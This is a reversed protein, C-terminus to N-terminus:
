FIGAITALFMPKSDAVGDYINVRELDYYNSNESVYGYRTGFGYSYGADKTIDGIQPNYDGNPYAISTIRTKLKEELVKKSRKIEDIVDDMELRTLIKHSCAHSEINIGNEVLELLQDWTMHRDVPSGEIGGLIMTFDNVISNIKDYPMSKLTRVYNIIELKIENKDKNFFENNCYKLLIKKSQQTRLETTKFIIHGLKEQWLTDDTSIHDIPVFIAAGCGRKKLIPYAYEFNDNWGDDFTILCQPMSFLKTHNVQAISLEDIDVVKFYKNVVSLHMDFNAPETMIAQHSFSHERLKCPLIRHYTLVLIKGSLKKKIIYNTIGTYYLIYAITKKLLRFLFSIYKRMEFM